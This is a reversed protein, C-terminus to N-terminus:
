RLFSLEKPDLKAKHFTQIFYPTTEAIGTGQQNDHPKRSSSSCAQTLKGEM